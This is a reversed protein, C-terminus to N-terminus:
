PIPRRRRLTWVLGFALFVSPGLAVVVSRWAAMSAFVQRSFGPTTRRRAQLETMSGGYALDAVTNLLLQDHQFGKRSLYANKFMESSGILLLRADPQAADVPDVVTTVQGADNQEFRIRPFPGTVEAVLSQPADFAPPLHFVSDPLWGGKWDFASAEGSTQILSRFRLGRSALTDVDAVFRNGWVFVQDGLRATIPTSADYNDRVTRILFPLAVEQSEYERAARRNIQTEMSLNSRNRDM